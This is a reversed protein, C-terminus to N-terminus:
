AKYQKKSYISGEIGQKQKQLEDLRTKLDSYLTGDILPSATKMQETITSIEDNISSLEMQTGAMINGFISETGSTLTDTANKMGMGILGSKYQEFQNQTQVDLQDKNAVMTSNYENTRNQIQANQADIGTRYQALQGSLQNLGENEKSVLISDMGVLGNREYSARATNISKDINEKAATEVASTNDKVLVPEIPAQYTSVIPKMKSAQIAGYISTAVNAATNIGTAINAAGITSLGKTDAPPPVDIASEAKAYDVKAKKMGLLSNNEKTNALWNDYLNSKAVTPKKADVTFEPLQVPFDYVNNTRLLEPNFTAQQWTKATPIKYISNAM